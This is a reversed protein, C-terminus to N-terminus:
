WMINKDYSKVIYLFLLSAQILEREGYYLIVFTKKKNIFQMYKSGWVLYMHSLNENSDMEIKTFEKMKMKKEKYIIIGIKKIKKNKELNIIYM